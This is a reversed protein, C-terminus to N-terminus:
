PELFVGRLDAFYRMIWCSFFFPTLALCLAVVAIWRHRERWLSVFSLPWALLFTAVSILFMLLVEAMLRVGSGSPIRLLSLVPVFAAVINGLVAVIAATAAWWPFKSPSESM